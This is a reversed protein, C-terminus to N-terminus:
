MPLIETASLLHREDAINRNDVFRGGGPLVTILLRAKKWFEIQVDSLQPREDASRNYTLFSRGKM